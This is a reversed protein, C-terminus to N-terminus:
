AHYAGCPRSASSAAHYQVIAAMDEPATDAQLYASANYSLKFISGDAYVGKATVFIVRANPCRYLAFDALNVAGGEPLDLSIVMADVPDLRLLREAEESTKAFSVRIDLDELVCAWTRALDTNPEAILVHNTM